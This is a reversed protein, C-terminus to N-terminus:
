RKVHAIQRTISDSVRRAAAQSGVVFRYLPGCSSVSTFGVFYLGPVTSEFRSSLIPANNYTQVKSVLSTHLMPLKRIDVRYGTGLILHDAKLVDNNSLVLTVGEDTEKLQQVHQLEHLHVKGMVRPKLWAAGMPGYSVVGRMLREKLAYPLRQFTYPFHELHWSMWGPAIGAKPSRIRERLPRHQPFSVDGQIWALPSRTVVHVDVGSEYALAATELASQGGGVIVLQKGAFHDFSVHDSTHSVLEASLHNYETPQYPYYALGPAMVVASSNVVRGDALTVIFLEGKSEITKVHTEDVDPVVHKQFWLGYEIVTEAPFPEVVQQGTERLYRELSYQKHPDSLNTAWWYSRLLMGKPMNKRWLQMPTGFVGITLGADLLHAATSLGYPGAGVVVVDYNTPSLSDQSMRTDISTNM